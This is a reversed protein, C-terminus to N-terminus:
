PKPAPTERPVEEIAYRIPLRVRAGVLPLGDDSWLAMRFGEALPLTAAGIGFGKPEESEMDCAELRGEEVVTCNMVVRAKLVGAKVAAPPYRSMFAEADPTALLKPSKAITSGDLMEPTFAFLIQVGVGNISKGDSLAEPGTFQGALDRAAKAFGYGRPEERLTGCARLGATRSFSCDLTVHGGIREAQAKTPYIRVLDDRTPAARWIPNSVVKRTLPPEPPLHSGTATGADFNIPIRVCCIDVPKGDKMAPKMLLQPTLALAAGGFGAGAPKESVVTCDFLVGRTSVKCAIVAKGSLGKRIAETPWVGMLSEATPRRLWDPKQDVLDEPVLEGKPPTEAAAAAGGVAFIALGLAAGIWHRM